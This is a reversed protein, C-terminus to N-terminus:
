EGKQEDEEASAHAFYQRLATELVAEVDRRTADSLKHQDCFRAAAAPVADTERFELTATRLSGDRKERDLGVSLEMALITRGPGAFPSYPLGDESVSPTAGRSESRHRLSPSNKTMSPGEPEACFGLAVGLLLRWQSARTCATPTSLPPRIFRM